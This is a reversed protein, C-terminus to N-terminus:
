EAPNIVPVNVGNITKWFFRRDNQGKDVLVTKILPSDISGSLKAEVTILNVEKVSNAKIIELEFM